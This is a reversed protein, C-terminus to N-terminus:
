NAGETVLLALAVVVDCGDSDGLKWGFWVDIGWVFCLM